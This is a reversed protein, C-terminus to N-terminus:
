AAEKRKHFARLQQREADTAMRVKPPSCPPETKKHPWDRAAKPGKRVYRDQQAHRLQRYVGGAAPRDTSRMARRVVRLGSAVSYRGSRRRQSAVLMLQLLWLGLLSWALEARATEPCRGLLKRHGMTQKLSRYQVEIGWRLRYWAKVESDSLAESSLVSTLLCVSRGKHKFQIKRLRLPERRRREATPWLWVISKDDIVDYGLQQLLTVNGGARVIFDRGSAMVSRLLDFGTFGADMLLLARDPLDALMHRLHTREAAGAVDIRYDWMVGTGVHYVTTVWQQPTTKARGACGFAAENAATRPCNVRTGDVALGVWRGTRWRAGAHQITQRQLHAKLMAAVRAGRSRLADLFGRGTKGPRKRSPYMNVVAKRADDFADIWTDAKSMALLVAVIALMRDSWRQRKDDSTLPLGKHPLHRAMADRLQSQYERRHTSKSRPRNM